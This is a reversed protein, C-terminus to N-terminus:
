DESLEVDVAVDNGFTRSKGLRYTVTKGRLTAFDLGRSARAHFFIKSPHRDIFGCYQGNRDVVVKAVKGTFRYGELEGGRGTEGAGVAGQLLETFAAIDKMGYHSRGMEGTWKMRCEDFARMAGQFLPVVKAPDTLAAILKECHKDIDKENDINPCPGAALERFLMLIHCRFPYYKVKEFVNERFMQELTFFALGAVYYPLRSQNEQYLVNAFERLLVSEHRHSMHPRGLLMGVAVQTLIRLNVKHTQKIRPDHQYQKSRREYYLRVAGCSFNCYFEELDKHFKRTGEFAEDYVINQRNTGRVIQNTIELDNTAIVKIQLPIRTLDTGKQKASFLVHSTQCGNVVQPNKLVLARNSTVFEDCVITIGNNLLGFKEPENVATYEIENNVNNVGQYDRVNDDFLSKRIVGDETTLMTMFENAFCLAMCSNAVGNVAPLSMVDITKIAASFTNTNNDCITKLGDSDVFHVECKEYTNLTEIDNKLEASLALLHPSDRWKGMAVYYLRVSPNSEWNIM